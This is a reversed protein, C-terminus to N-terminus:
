MYIYLKARHRIRSIENNLPISDCIKTEKGGWKLGQVFFLGKYTPVQVLLYQIVRELFLKYDTKADGSGWTVTGHPENLVELGM